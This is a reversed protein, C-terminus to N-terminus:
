FPTNVQVIRPLKIKLQSVQRSRQIYYFDSVFKSLTDSPFENNLLLEIPLFQIVALLSLRLPQIRNRTGSLYQYFMLGREAFFFPIVKRKMIRPTTSLKKIATQDAYDYQMM